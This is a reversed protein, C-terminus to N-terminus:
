NSLRQIVDVTDNYDIVDKHLLPEAPDLIWDAATQLIYKNNLEMGLNCSIYNQPEKVIGAMFSFSSANLTVLMPSHVMLAFDEFISNCQATMKIGSAAFINSYYNIYTACSNQDMSRHQNCSLMIAKSFGREKLREAMWKVSTAKPMHYNFHKNFPSDSCRFHVIPYAVSRQKVHQNLLDRMAPRISQWFELYNEKADGNFDIPNWTSDPRTTYSFNSVPTWDLGDYFKRLNPDTVWQAHMKQDMAIRPLPDIYVYYIYESLRNGLASIGPAIVPKPSSKPTSCVIVTVSLAIFIIALNNSILKNM